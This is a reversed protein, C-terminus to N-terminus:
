GAVQAHDLTPLLQTLRHQVDHCVETEVGDDMGGEVVRGSPDREVRERDRIRSAHAIQAVVAAEGREERERRERHRSSEGRVAQGHADLEEATLKGFASQEREAIGELLGSMVAPRRLAGWRQRALGLRIIGADKSPPCRILLRMTRPPRSIAPASEMATAACCGGGFGDAEAM